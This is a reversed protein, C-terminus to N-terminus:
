LKRFAFCMPLFTMFSLFLWCCKVRPIIGQELLTCFLHSAGLVAPSGAPTSFAWGGVGAAFAASVQPVSLSLLYM